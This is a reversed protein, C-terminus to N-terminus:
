GPLVAEFRVGFIDALFFAFGFWGMSLGVLVMEGTRSSEAKKQSQLFLGTLYFVGFSLIFACLVVARFIVAHCMDRNQM